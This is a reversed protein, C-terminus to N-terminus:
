YLFCLLLSNSIEWLLVPCNRQCSSYVSYGQGGSPVPQSYHWLWCLGHAKSFPNWWGYSLVSSDWGNAAKATSYSRGPKSQDAWVSNKHVLSSSWMCTLVSGEHEPLWKFDIWFTIVLDMGERTLSDMPMYCDLFAWLLLPHYVKVLHTLQSIESFPRCGDLPSFILTLPTGSEPNTFDVWLM